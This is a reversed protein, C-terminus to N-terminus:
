RGSSRRWSNGPAGPRARPDAAPVATRIPSGNYDAEIGGVSVRNRGESKARYLALDAARFLAEGSAEPSAEVAVGPRRRVHRWLCAVGISISLSGRGFSIGALVPAIDAVSNRLDGAVVLAQDATHSPLAVAFEDGGYRCAVAEAPLRAALVRGVARVAEAGALHGHVDNISKLRDVDLVLMALPIGAAESARVLNALRAEFSRLNHLGTLDDTAALHHLRRADESLRATVLGVAIFLAVQVIDSEKYGAIIMTPNALHYLAIAAISVAFGARAGIRRSALIIPLYYLHQLPASATIRDLWFILALSLLIAIYLFAGPSEARQRLRANLRPHDTLHM